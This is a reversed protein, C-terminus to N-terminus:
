FDNQLFKPTIFLTKKITQKENECFIKEKM